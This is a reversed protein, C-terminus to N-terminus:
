LTGTDMADADDDKELDDKKFYKAPSQDEDEWESDSDDEHKRKKGMAKEQKAIDCLAKELAKDARAEWQNAGATVTNEAARTVKAELGDMMKKADESSLYRRLPTVILQMGREVQSPVHERAAQRVTEKESKINKKGFYKVIKRNM